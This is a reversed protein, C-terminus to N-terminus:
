EFTFEPMVECVDLMMTGDEKRPGRGEIFLSAYGHVFAWLMLESQWCRMGDPDDLAPRPWILGEAVSRLVAYSEAGAVNLEADEIGKLRPSFMLRFLAPHQKAFRVYGSAAAALREQGPATGAVGRRMEAAHRRFGEAAIACLLGQLGKFHNKPATHSVGVHAAIARLSLQELGDEELLELGADVLAVKLNGHHYKKKKSKLM